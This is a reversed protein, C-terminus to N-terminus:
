PRDKWQGKSYESHTMFEVVTVVQVRYSVWTLLRYNNGRINFVTVIVGSQVVVGDASPYTQRVDVISQWNADEVVTMWARLASAADRHKRTAKLLVGANVLLV